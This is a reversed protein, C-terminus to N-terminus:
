SILRVRVLPGSKLLRHGRGRHARDLVPGGAPSAAALLELHEEYRKAYSAARGPDPEIVRAPGTWAATDLPVGYRGAAALVRGRAGVEGEVVRLPRGLVDALLGTWAPSRTGGGCM